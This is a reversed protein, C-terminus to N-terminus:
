TYLVRVVLRRMTYALLEIVMMGGVVGCGDLGARGEFNHEHSDANGFGGYVLVNAVAFFIVTLAVTGYDNPTLKWACRRYRCANKKAVICM